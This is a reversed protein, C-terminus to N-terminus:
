DRVGIILVMGLDYFVFEAMAFVGESASFQFDYSDNFCSVEDASSECM